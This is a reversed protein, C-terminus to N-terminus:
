YKALFADLGARNKEFAAACQGIAEATTAVAHAMGDYKAARPEFFANVDARHADDCFVKAGEVLQFTVEDSRMRPAVADFSSKLFQWAAERTARPGLQASIIGASDRVDFDTGAWVAQARKVLPPSTFRGLASLLEAVKRHDTEKKARELLASFLAEDNTTGAAALVTGVMEPAVVSPDKLWGKALALARARLPADDGSLAAMRMMEGRLLEGDVGDDPRRAFGLSAARPGYLRHLFRTEAAAEHDNMASERALKALRVGALVVYRDKSTATDPVLAFADAISLAGSAVLAMADLLASAREAESIGSSPALVDRLPQAGYAVHYYGRGDANGMIWRPCSPADIPMTATPGDLLTCAVGSARAGKAYRVCVPVKWTEPDVPAGLPQYRRQRVTMERKGGECSATAEILPAGPQDVFSAFAAGAGPQEADLAALFDAATASGFAHAAIYGRIVRQFREPTMWAEFMGIVSQGKYYTIDNDSSSEIDSNTVVPQRIKRATTLADGRMGFFSREIRELDFHWAPDVRDSIKEDMWTGFAENLWMDDWWATTVYDGFWYHALEHAAIDTYRQEREVSRDSEKILTLPQGLAVLGPHEMTGWFRPVVAVDLKGYPYPMGFYDELYGVIKPTVKAAYATEAGRGRPVVFRLPTRFHGAFGADVVDFPGVMFAVLYSPLPKSEALEVVKGGAEPHESVVPANGLAVDGAPVHFSVKWPVKYSPEDFCPFARRADIPEFFTYLYPEGDGERAAYISRSREQDVNGHYAISLRAKGPAIDHDFVFGVYDDGGPIVGAMSTTGGVEVTAADIALDTADLWVVRTTTVVDLDIAIKGRFQKAHPDLWLELDYRLPKADM